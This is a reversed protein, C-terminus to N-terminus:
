EALQVTHRICVSHLVEERLQDSESRYAELVALVEKPNLEILRVPLGQRLQQALNEVVIRVRTVILGVRIFQFLFCARIFLFYVAFFNLRRLIQGFFYNTQKKVLKKIALFQKSAVQKM